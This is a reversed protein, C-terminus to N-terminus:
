SSKFHFTLDGLDDGPKLRKLAATIKDLFARLSEATPNHAKLEIGDKTLKLPKDQKPKKNGLLESVRAEVGEVCLKGEKFKEALDIQKSTDTIRSIAYGARACVIGEAVMARVQDCLRTSIALRKTGTAPNVKIQRWLEAPKWGNLNMIDQYVAAYELDSMGLRMANAQLQGIKLTSEDPKDRYVLVPVTELVALLAALYRTLGDSIRFKEGERYALLPVQIGRQKVDAVFRDFFERYDPASRDRIDHPPPLLFSPHVDM